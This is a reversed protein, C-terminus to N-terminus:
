EWISWPVAINKGICKAYSEPKKVPDNKNWEEWPTGSLM